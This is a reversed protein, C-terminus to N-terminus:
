NKLNNPLHKEFFKLFLHLNADCFDDDFDLIFTIPTYDFVNLKMSECYLM